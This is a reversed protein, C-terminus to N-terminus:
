TGRNPPLHGAGGTSEGPESSQVGTIDYPGHRVPSDESTQQPAPIRASRPAATAAILGVPAEHPHVVIADGLEARTPPLRWYTRGLPSRSEGRRRGREGTEAQVDSGRLPAHEVLRTDQMLKDIAQRQSLRGQIKGAWYSRRGRDPCLGRRDSRDASIGEAVDITASRTQADGAGHPAGVHTFEGAHPTAEYRRIFVDIFAGRLRSQSVFEGREQGPEASRSSLRAFIYRIIGISILASREQTWARSAWLHFISRAARRSFATVCVTRVLPAECIVELAVKM